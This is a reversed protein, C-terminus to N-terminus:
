LDPHIAKWISTYTNIDNMGVTTMMLSASRRERSACDARRRVISFNVAFKRTIRQALEVLLIIAGIRLRQRKSRTPAGESSSTLGLTDRIWGLSKHQSCSASVGELHAFHQHVYGLFFREVEWFM